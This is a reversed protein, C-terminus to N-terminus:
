SECSAQPWLMRAGCPSGVKQTLHFGSGLTPAQRNRKEDACKGNQVAKQAYGCFSPMEGGEIAPAVCRGLLLYPCSPARM